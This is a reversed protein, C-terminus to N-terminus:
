PPLDPRLGRTIDRRCLEARSKVLRGRGPPTYRRTMRLRRNM